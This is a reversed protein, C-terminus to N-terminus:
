SSKRFISALRREQESTEPIKDNNFSQVLMEQAISTFGTIQELSIGKGMLYPIAWFYFMYSPLVVSGRITKYMLEVMNSAVKWDMSNHKWSYGEGILGHKEAHKHIPTKKAYYYLEARYFAPSSEELFNITNRLTEETEGPFGVIISVFTTIGREKLKHIGYKYKDIKAFKNMNNLITQDGSEIGLFVGKCGSDRMLDFTEDDSHSCRFYSFWNFDFKYRIMMRCIEKFRRLPVNFTDDIFIINKVGSAHFMKLEDEVVKLSTFNLPGAVVPYQCFSCKFACSRATRTQTTPTYFERRFYRWEVSNEDMDNSEIMRKTRHFTNNDFTYILNPIDSFNQKKQNRLERLIYSLTTEGQSDYVYIDAGIRKFNLHQTKSDYGSCINYIHPGGVIIKTQPSHHRVFNIIDIIPSNDVYFTTTIAVASPSQVLLDLLRDKEYNFFNIIEVKFQRKRLFSKLYSVGLSPLECVHFHRDQGTTEKLIQNLVDMYPTRVGRFYVSNTKLQRYTGSYAQMKRLNNEVVQFGIDNYGIIICDLNDYRAMKYTGGM